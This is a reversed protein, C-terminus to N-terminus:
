YKIFANTGGPSGSPTSPLEFTTSGDGPGYSTGVVSFLNAYQIRSVDSGDCALWGNVFSQHFFGFQGAQTAKNGFISEFDIRYYIGEAQESSTITSVTLLPVRNVYTWNGSVKFKMRLESLDFWYQNNGTTAPAYYGIHYPYSAYVASSAVTVAGTSTNLEAYVIYAANEALTLSAISTLYGYYNRPGFEDFGDSFVVVLPDSGSTSFSLTNNPSGPTLTCFVSVDDMGSIPVSKYGSAGGKAYDLSRKLWVTRDALQKAQANALGHTAGPVPDDGVLVPAGGYGWDTIALQYIGPRFVASETINAM